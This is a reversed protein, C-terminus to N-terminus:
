HSVLPFYFRARPIFAYLTIEASVAPDAQSTLTLTALNSDGPLAEGPASIAISLATGSCPAMAPSTPPATSKWPSLLQVSFTDTINGQNTIQLTYTITQGPQIVRAYSSRLASIASGPDVQLFTAGPAGWYGASDQSEVFLTHRGPPLCALSTSVLLNEVPADFVGDAAPLAQLAAGPAWPPADLSYRAAAIPQTPEAGWSAGNYYRTDDASATITITEGPAAAAPSVLVQLTEPGAPDLYPRRAAKFAYLLAPLNDPLLTDVFVDCSEHFNVGLEFTYAAVGLQGYVWDDSTGSAPYICGPEGSQCVEYHNYYGFKRGLTELAKDNPAPQESWGWPFLVLSGYSHLTLFVGTADQPAPDHDGPGRQDPFLGTLYDQLAQTEPESASGPGRYIDSCAESNSGTAGWRFDHNRNLDVGFNDFCGDDNDTNKRWYRDNAEAVKRGDPNTIAVIHIQFYDLLWTIDPVIGYNQILWEGFRLALEATAYERAHIAAMLFFAPKPGPIAENTLRLALLDYGPLGGPQTKEWSDGIDFIEALDPRGTALNTIDAYTEEVSRYCPFGPIGSAQGPLYTAPTNLLRTKPVDIELRYGARVLAEWEAPALLALLYGQAHHIEWVDLFQTLSNLEGPGTFYVRAIVPQSPTTPDRAGDLAPHQSLGSQSKEPFDAVAPIRSGPAPQGSPFQFFPILILLLRFIRNVPFTSGM